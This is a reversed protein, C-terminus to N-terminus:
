ELRLTLGPFSHENLSEAVPNGYLALSGGGVTLSGFSEPLSELQNNNFYLHGGVTLSGFSEPLSELKNNNLHLDGGVTLSGFSEPLSELKNNCLNLQGGVTLSGFSEPLSELQNSYLAMDGDVTLDGISEPLVVRGLSSWNLDGLVHFDDEPDVEVGDILVEVTLGDAAASPNRAVIETAVERVSAKRTKISASLRAGDQRHGFVRATPSCSLSVFPV